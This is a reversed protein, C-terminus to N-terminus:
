PSPEFQTERPGGLMRAWCLLDIGISTTLQLRQSGFDYAPWIGIRLLGFAEAVIGLSARAADHWPLYLAQALCRFGLDSLKIPLLWSLQGGLAMDWRPNLYSAAVLAAIQMRGFDVGPALSTEFLYPTRPTDAGLALGQHLDLPLAISQARCPSRAAAVLMAAMLLLHASAGPRAPASKRATQWVRRQQRKSLM